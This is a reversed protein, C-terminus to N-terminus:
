IGSVLKFSIKSEPPDRNYGQKKNRKKFEQQTPCRPSKVNCLIGGPARNRSCQSHSQKTGMSYAYWGTLCGKVELCLLHCSRFAGVTTMLYNLSEDLGSCAKHHPVYGAQRVQCCLTHLFFLLSFVNLTAYLFVVFVFSLPVRSLFNREPFVPYLM